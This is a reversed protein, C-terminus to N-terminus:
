LKYFQAYIGCDVVDGLFVWVRGFIFFYSLFDLKGIMDAGAARPCRWIGQTIKVPFLM